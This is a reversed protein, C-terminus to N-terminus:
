EWDEDWESRKDWENMEARDRGLEFWVGVVSLGIATAVGWGTPRTAALLLAALFFLPGLLLLRSRM